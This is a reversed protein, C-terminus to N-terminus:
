LSVQLKQLMSMVGSTDGGFTDSDLGVTRQAFKDLRAEMHEITRQQVDSRSRRPSAFTLCAIAVLAGSADPPTCQWVSSAALPDCREMEALQAVMKENSAKEKLLEMSAQAAEHAKNPTPANRRPTAGAAGRPTVELPTPHHSGSGSEASDLTPMTFIRPEQANSIARQMELFSQQQEKVFSDVPPM